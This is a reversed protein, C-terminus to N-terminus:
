SSRPMQDADALVTPLHPDLDYVIRTNRFVTQNRVPGPHREVVQNLDLLTRQRGPRARSTSSGRVIKRCRLTENVITQIDEGV